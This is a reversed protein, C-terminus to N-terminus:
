MPCQGTEPSFFIFGVLSIAYFPAIIAFCYRWGSDVVILMAPSGGGVVPSMCIESLLVTSSLQSSLDSFAVASFALISVLM